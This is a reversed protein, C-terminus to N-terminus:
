LFRLPFTKRNFFLHYFYGLFLFSPWGLNSYLSRLWMSSFCRPNLTMPPLSTTWVPIFSMGPICSPSFALNCHFFSTFFLLAPINFFIM